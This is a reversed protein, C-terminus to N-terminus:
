TAERVIVVDTSFHYGQTQVLGIEAFVGQPLGKMLGDEYVRLRYTYDVKLEKIKSLSLIRYTLKVPEAFKKDNVTSIELFERDGKTDAKRCVCDITILEGLPFGLSGIIENKTNLDNWSIPTRAPKAGQAVAFACLFVLSILLILSYKAM